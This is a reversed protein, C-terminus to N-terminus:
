RTSRLCCYPLAGPRDITASTSRSNDCRWAVGARGPDARSGSGSSQGARQRRRASAALWALGAVLMGATAPAPVPSTVGASFEFGYFSALAFSAPGLRMDLATQDLAFVPDAEASCSTRSSVSEVTLYGGQAKCGAVLDVFDTRGPILSIAVTKDFDPRDQDSRQARVARENLVDGNAWPLDPRSRMTVFASGYAFGDTAVGARQADRKVEGRVAVTVPVSALTAPAAALAVLRVEYTLHASSVAEWKFNGVKGENMATASATPSEGLLTRVSASAPSDRGIAAVMCDDSMAGAQTLLAQFTGCTLLTSSSANALAIAHTVGPLGLLAVLGFAPLLRRCGSWGGPASGTPKSGAPKGSWNAGVVAQFDGGSGRLRSDM